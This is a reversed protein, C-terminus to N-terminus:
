TGLPLGAASWAIVGGDLDAVQEFGLQAMLATTQGSRNGSRCYVLYRQERDLKGIQDAFDPAYFDIMTAGGIHGEAFEEPTRVDILTVGPDAALDAAQQPTVLGTMVAPAEGGAAPADLGAVADSPDDSGCATAVPVVAALMMLTISLLSSRRM